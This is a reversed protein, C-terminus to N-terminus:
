KEYWNVNDCRISNSHRSLTIAKTCLFENRMNPLFTFIISLYWFSHIQFAKNYITTVTYPKICNYCIWHITIERPASLKCIRHHMKVIFGAKKHLFISTSRKRWKTKSDSSFFVYTPYTCDLWRKNNLLCIVQVNLQVFHIVYAFPKIKWHMNHMPWHCM